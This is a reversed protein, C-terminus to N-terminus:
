MEGAETTMSNKACLMMFQAQELTFNIGKENEFVFRGFDGNKVYFVHYQSKGMVETEAIFGEKEDVVYKILKNVTNEEFEAKREEVTYDNDYDEIVELQFVDGKRLYTGYSENLVETESPVPIIINMDYEAMDIKDAIEMKEIKVASISNEEDSHSSNTEKQDEKPADKEKSEEGCSAVVLSACMLLM